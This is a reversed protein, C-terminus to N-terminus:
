YLTKKRTLQQLVLAAVAVGMSAVLKPNKNYFDTARTVVANGGLRNNGTTPLSQGAPIYDQRPVPQARSKQNLKQVIAATAKAAIIKSLM